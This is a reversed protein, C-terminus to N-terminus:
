FISPNIASVRSFQPTPLHLSPPRPVKACRLNGETEFVASAVYLTVYMNLFLQLLLKKSTVYIYNFELVCKSVIIPTIDDYIQVM